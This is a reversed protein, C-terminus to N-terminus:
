ASVQLTIKFLYIEIGETNSQRTEHLYIEKFIPSSKLSQVFAVIEPNSFGVGDITINGASISMTNLWVGETLRKSMEDLIRVPMIQAKRLTEIINKRDTFVKNLAEFDKVEKIKENLADIKKKNDAKTSELTKIKSKLYYLAYASAVSSVVLLLVGVILYTPVPKPKKRVKRKYPLLNIRIM